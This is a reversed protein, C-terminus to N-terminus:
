AGELILVGSLSGSVKTTPAVQAAVSYTGPNYLPGVYGATARGSPGNANYTQGIQTWGGPGTMTIAPTGETRQHYAAGFLISKKTLVIGSNTLGAIFLAGNSVGKVSAVGEFSAAYVSHNRDLTSGYTSVVKVAGKPPNMLMFGAIIFQKNSITKLVVQTMAVGNVTATVNTVPSTSDALLSWVCVCTASAPVNLDITVTKLANGGPASMAQTLLKPDPVSSGILFGMTVPM